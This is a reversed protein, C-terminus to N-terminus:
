LCRAVDHAPADIALVSSYRNIRPGDIDNLKNVISLRLYLLGLVKSGPQEQVVLKKKLLSTTSDAMTHTSATLRSLKSPLCIYCCFIHAVVLVVLDIYVYRM